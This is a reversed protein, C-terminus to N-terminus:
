TWQTTQLSLTFLALYSKHHTFVVKVKIVNQCLSCTYGACGYFYATLIWLLSRLRLNIKLAINYMCRTVPIKLSFMKMYLRTKLQVCYYNYTDMCLTAYVICTCTISLMHHKLVIYMQPM